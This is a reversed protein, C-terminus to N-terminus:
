ATERYVPTSLAHRPTLQDPCVGDFIVWLVTATRPGPRDGSHLRIVPELRRRRRTAANLRNWVNISTIAILLASLGKEDYHYPRKRGCRTRSRTAM